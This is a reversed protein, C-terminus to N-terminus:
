RHDIVTGSHGVMGIEDPNDRTQKLIGVCGRDPYSFGSKSDWFTIKTLYVLFHFVQSPDSKFDLNSSFFQLYLDMVLRKQNYQM